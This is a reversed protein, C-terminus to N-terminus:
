LRNRKKRRRFVKSIGSKTRSYAGGIAGAVKKTPSVFVKRATSKVGIKVGEKIIM